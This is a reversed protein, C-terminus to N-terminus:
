PSIKTEKSYIYFGLSYLALAVWSLSIMVVAIPNIACRVAILSGITLLVMSISTITNFIKERTAISNNQLLSFVNKLQMLVSISSTVISLAIKGVEIAGEAPFQILIVLTSLAVAGAFKLLGDFLGKKLAEQVKSIEIPQNQSIKKFVDLGFVRIFKRKKLSELSQCKQDFLHNFIAKYAEKDKEDLGKPYDPELPKDKKPINTARERLLHFYAENKLCEENTPSYNGNMVKKAKSIFSLPTQKQLNKKIEEIEKQTPQLEDKLAEQLDTGPLNRYKKWLSFKEHLVLSSLTLLAASAGSLGATIAISLGSLFSPTLKEPSIIQLASRLTGASKEVSECGAHMTKVSGTIPDHVDAVKSKKKYGFLSAAVNIVSVVMGYFSAGGALIADKALSIRGEYEIEVPLEHAERGKFHEATEIFQECAGELRSCREMSAHTTDHIHGLSAM